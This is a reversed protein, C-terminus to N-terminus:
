DRRSSLASASIYQKINLGQSSKEAEKDKLVVSLPAGDCAGDRLWAWFLKEETLSVVTDVTLCPGSHLMLLCVAFMIRTNECCNDKLVQEPM